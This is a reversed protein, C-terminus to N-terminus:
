KVLLSRERSVSLLFVLEFQYQLYGLTLKSCPFISFASRKKEKRKKEIRKKEKRKKEKRKKEKRKKEKRKKEKTFISLLFSM